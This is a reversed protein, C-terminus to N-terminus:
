GRPRGDLATALRKPAVLRFSEEVLEALGDWGDGDLAALRAGVWGKRGVYPPVFWRDPDSGVLAEQVAPGPKFWVGTGAGKEMAFIRGRVRYTPDGWTEVECAEPLALCLRRLRGRAGPDM